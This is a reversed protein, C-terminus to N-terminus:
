PVSVRLTNRIKFNRVTFGPESEELTLEVQIPGYQQVPDEEDPWYISGNQLMVLCFLMYPGTEITRYHLM